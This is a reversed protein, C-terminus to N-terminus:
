VVAYDPAQGTLVKIVQVTAKRRLEALSEESYYAVHPTAVLGPVGAITEADLPETEFVDLAAGGLSGQRLAECVADFDVLAGRSTNVLVADDRMTALERTSILHHSEATLPAHLSVLHSRELLTQLDVREVGELEPAVPDYGLISSRWPRILDIFARGIRGLGIVGVTISSPRRLPRVCSVDWRGSRVAANGISVKRLGDLALALTHHAVEEICYDPVNTVTIGREAAAVIAVNDVGIGCRAIVRCRALGAVAPEDLVFYTVLLGDAEAAQALVDQRNGTATVLRGGASAILEAEVEPPSVLPDTALVTFATV